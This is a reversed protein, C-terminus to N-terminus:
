ERRICTPFRLGGFSQTACASAQPRETQWCQVNGCSCQGALALPFKWTEKKKTVHAKVNEEVTCSTLLLRTNEFTSSNLDLTCHGRGGASLLLFYLSIANIKDGNRPRNRAKSFAQSSPLPSHSTARPAEWMRFHVPCSPRRWKRHVVLEHKKEKPLLNHLLCVYLVPTVDLLLPPEERGHTAARLPSSNSKGM